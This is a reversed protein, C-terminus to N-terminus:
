DENIVSPVRFETTAPRFLPNQNLSFTTKQRDIEFKQYEQKDKYTTWFKWILLCITAFFFTVAIIQLSVSAVNIPANCIKEGIKLLVDHNRQFEYTYQIFCTQTEGVTSVICYHENGKDVSDVKKTTYDTVNTRCFEDIGQPNEITANVCANYLACLSGGGSGVSLECYKGRYYTGDEATVNCRCEGCDCYGRGACVDTSGPAMCLVETLPCQCGNGKWGKLCQCVGCTCTGRGSCELGDYKDCASCECYQGKYGEDCVCSGCICEGKDSCIKSSDPGICKLRNETSSSINCDCHEGSWGSDCKCLGCEDSGHLCHSNHSDKCNCGCLLEVEIVIESAKSALADEIIITQKWLSENRPCKDFSLMATFKYVEGEQIGDCESTYLYEGDKKGCNSLYQLRLPDTSNDQLVVKSILEHYSSEIIELINSSDSTLTAVRAKQKLLNAISEYEARRDETVAFILNVKNEKLLRSVEELSPYDFKTSMAYKGDGDLHCKFDSRAVTGILKGDGAFHLFGDTAMLIIKRAQHAWGVEKACVISQVVGDMGAELNDVNGTVSSENMEKIFRHINESLSMRHQFAYLPSCVSHESKCPNDEHGPFVFPMLPKDAYSGFGFRFNNTFKGITDTMNLGLAVMTDKDDKMSWTLDMLYYLDLPYNKAPRYYLNVTRSEKPRIRMKVKQPKLQLPTQGAEQVDQFDFDEVLEVSGSPATRIEESPCGFAWLNDELNCRPRGLTSNSFSWDSCWACALSAELCNECTNQSVCLRMLETDVAEFRDWESFLTALLLLARTIRM